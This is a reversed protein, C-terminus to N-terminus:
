EHNAGIPAMDVLEEYYGCRPVSDGGCTATPWTGNPDDTFVEIRVGDPDEFFLQGTRPDEADPVDQRQRVGHAILADRVESLASLSPAEFSLHHLGAIGRDSTSRAQEWLTLLVRGDRGLLAFGSEAVEGARITEFGLVASYFDVSQQLDTVNLGCTGIGVSSGSSTTVVM